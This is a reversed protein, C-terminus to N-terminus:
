MSLKKFIKEPILGILFMIYRWFWKTYVIDKGKFISKYVDKAVKEPTATLLPPLEMNETMKTKIFGPKITIVKVGSKYLRNRLGQFYISFGAKASGYMFNSSKGRDGAVSSFGVIIGAKRKEFELAFMNIFLVGNLYNVKIIKEAEDVSEMAKQNDGLYGATYILCDVDIYKEFIEEFKEVDFLDFQEVTVKGGYRTEIDRKQFDLEELNKSLLILENGKLALLKSLEKAVDSNAGVILFKM